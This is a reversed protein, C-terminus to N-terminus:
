SGAFPLSDVIGVALHAWILLFAALVALGVLLRYKPPTVRAIAVFLTGAGFILVGMIVFDLLSWQVGVDNPNSPDPKVWDFQMAMYPISLIVATGVAIWLFIKNQRILDNTNTKM